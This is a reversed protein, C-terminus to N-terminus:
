PLVVENAQFVITELAEVDDESADFIPFIYQTIFAERYLTSNLDSGDQAITTITLDRSGDGSTPQLVDFLAQNIDARSPTIEVRDCKASVTEVISAGSAGSAGLGTAWPSYAIVVCDFLTTTWAPADTPFRRANVVIDKLAAQGSATANWWERIVHDDVHTNLHFKVVVPEPRGPEFSKWASNATPADLAPIVLPSIEIRLVNESLDTDFQNTFIKTSSATAAYVVGAPSFLGRITISDSTQALSGPSGGDNMGGILVIPDVQFSLGQVSGGGGGGGGTVPATTPTATPVPTPTATPPVPTPTPTPTPTPSPTPTPTATPTPTPAPRRVVVPRRLITPRTITTTPVAGKSWSPSTDASRNTTIRRPNTGTSTMVWIDANRSRTAAWAISRGDPSWAPATDNEKSTTLKKAVAKTFNPNGRTGPATITWINRDRGSLRTYAISLGNPSWDPHEEREKTRAVPTITGKTDSYAIDYNRGNAQTFAILNKSSWDPDTEQSKGKTLRVPKSRGDTGVTYIYYRVGSRNSQFAISRGNPSWTPQLDASTSRTLLKPNATPDISRVYIDYNGRANSAYAISRGDPSVAVNREVATTKTLRTPSAKADPDVSYLEPNGVRRSEFAIITDGVAAPPRSLVASTSVLLAILALLTAPVLNRM